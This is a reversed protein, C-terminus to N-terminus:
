DEYLAYHDWHGSRGRGPTYVYLHECGTGKWERKAAFLSGCTRPKQGDGREAHYLPQPERMADTWTRETRLSSMSGPSVLKRVAEVTRYHENLIPLQHSPYGDWHCYAARISGDPQKYGIASRTGM